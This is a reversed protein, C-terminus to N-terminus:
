LRGKQSLRVLRSLLSVVVFFLVATMFFRLVPIGYIASLTDNFLHIVEGLFSSLGAESYRYM